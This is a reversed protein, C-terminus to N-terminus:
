DDTWQEVIIGYPPDIYDEPNVVQLTFNSDSIFYIFLSLLLASFIMVAHTKFNNESPKLLRIALGLAFFLWRNKLIFLFFYGCFMRLWQPNYEFSTSIGYPRIMPFSHMYTYVRAAKIYYYATSLQLVFYLLTFVLLSWYLYKCLKNDLKRPRAILTIAQMVTWGLAVLFLPFLLERLTITVGSQWYRAAKHLEVWFFFPLGSLLCVAIGIILARYEARNNEEKPLGYLLSNIDCDLLDSIKVLMDVDPRSKGTEYNSVTQRTVFLKEALEDQTMKRKIRLERINRGIDRM